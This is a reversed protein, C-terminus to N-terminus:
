KKRKMIIEQKVKQMQDLYDFFGPVNDTDFQTMVDLLKLHLEQKLDEREQYAIRRLSQKIKPEFQKLICVSANKDKQQALKMWQYLDGMIESVGNM